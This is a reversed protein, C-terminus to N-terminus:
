YHSLVEDIAFPIFNGGDFMEQLIGVDKSMTVINSEFVNYNEDLAWIGDSPRRTMFGRM